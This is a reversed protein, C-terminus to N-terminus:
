NRKKADPQLMAPADNWWGGGLAVMLTVTDSLRAGAVELYALQAQHLQVDAILVQVYSATGKAYAIRVLELGERAAAVARAEAEIGAADHELARLTDAVQQLAGLVTQRYDALAANFAYVAAKRQHWLTGGRFLPALVGAGISWFLSAPSFLNTIDSSNTGVTGTLTLTPLMAATAVGINASAAHLM